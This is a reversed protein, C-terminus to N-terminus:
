RRGYVFLESGNALVIKELRIIKSGDAFQYGIGTIVDGAKVTSANWGNGAMRALAPGGISWKETQGNDSRVDISIMPHPNVWSFATVTGKVTVLSERSVPWSHHASLTPVCLLGVVLTLAQLKLTM